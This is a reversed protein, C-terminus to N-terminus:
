KYVIFIDGKKADTPHTNGGSKYEESTIRPFNFEDEGQGNSLKYYLSKIDFKFYANPDITFSGSTPKAGIKLSYVTGTGVNEETSTVKLGKFVSDNGGTDLEGEFSSLTPFNSDTNSIIINLFIDGSLVSLDLESIEFYYGHIVCHLNEIINNNIAGVSVIYSDKDTISRLIGTLNDESTYISRAKSKRNSSPFVEIAETKVYM